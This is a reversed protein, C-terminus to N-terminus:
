VRRIKVFLAKANDAHKRDSGFEVLGYWTEGPDMAPQRWTVTVDFPTGAKASRPGTVTLDGNDTGPIVATSLKVNSAGLGLWNQVVIWYTGGELSSLRCSEIATDSASRCLEEAEEALGDGNADRGVFLDLDVADTEVIDSALFRSGAPVDILVTKVGVPVDYPGETPTPDQEILFADDRGQALGSIVSSFRTIDVKATTTVITAGQSSNTVVDVPVPKSTQLAVPLRTAPVGGGKPTLTVAGFNWRGVPLRRVDATITVTQTAGPALTFEAPAITWRLDAPGTATARWTTPVGARSTVTRTWTCTGDCDDEGLSGLNLTSPDGGSAPDAAAFAGAAVDFTLGARPALSLDARGGGIDFPDAPRLGDEKRVGASKGTTVLASHIEAATWNGHLARMLAAVGAMHPSSMSTGSIVGFEPPSTPNTTHVAALIDVGPATIDPKVVGPVPKNPGRSSFSAMVDGNAAATDATTGAISGTHGEGSALWGKLVVGDAYSIGLGPIPYADGVMSNGSAQDNALVFGGAGGEMVNAAKEVRGYVGRDCVVIEGDFTGPPFPNIAAEGTAAAPGDGCLPFGFDGAYVIPAPGYGATLSRGSMDAPASGGGSLGTLANVFARNHTSAAVSLLWPSNAPSGVSEAKPGDNGASAAVFVGAERASLFSQSDADTWPDSPGGGISYNIVDVADAVAQDIAATLSAGLCGVAICAKYTILNAHPAVGSIPRDLTITPARLTATLQNGAATSATHSGHQNDDLPTTGTFDWVGILKDNCFPLGTLPDCLGYFRGRPNRHDYGDGGVDAFSPHDHNIGTDIVGVVVREGKTAGFAGTTSGEWVGPAGIWTPGADTQLQRVFDKQVRAVGAVNRLVDAEAATLNLAFGNYAYRYTFAPAASRGLASKAAALVTSQKGALYQLYAKSAVSAPDLKVAGTVAPSTAALGLIGGRYSALPADTLQVIYRDTGAAAGAQASALTTALAAALGLVALVRWAHVRV